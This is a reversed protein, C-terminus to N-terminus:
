DLEIVGCAARDGANGTPQGFDDPQAHLIFALDGVSYQGNTLSLGPILASYVGEGDSSIEVNGLDGAHANEFGDELLYGHKVGAPNYHGGAAKGGDACSDNEHIHFGHTGEPGDLFSVEIALGPETDELEAVGVVHSDETDTIIAEATAAWAPTTWGVSLLAVMLTVLLWNPLCRKMTPM